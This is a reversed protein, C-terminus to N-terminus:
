RAEELASRVAARDIKDHGTRPLPDLHLWRRPRQTRALHERAVATLHPVDGAHTVAAAVVEGLDPHPLGVVVLDGTALPRLVGEVDAVRVTAGATTIGGARGHVVVRGDVGESPIRTERPSRTPQRRLDDRYMTVDLSGVPVARGEVEAVLRALRHALEVGRSPIGLLVLDEAGKNREVIEHAIRKLARAIDGSSLVERDTTDPCM